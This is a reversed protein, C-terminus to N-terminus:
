NGHNEGKILQKSLLMALIVALIGGVLKGVIMPFIMTQDYGASFGLHEGFVFAASTALAVNIFIGREDMDKLMNFMPISNALSAVLGAAAVDNMILWNGLGM